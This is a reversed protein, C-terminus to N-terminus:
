DTYDTEYFMVVRKNNGPATTFQVQTTAKTIDATQATGDVWVNLKATDACPADTPLTFTTTATAAVFAILKPKYAHMGILAQAESFGETAASFATEWLWKTVVAPSVLFRSVAPSENMGQPHAYITAKPIMIARWVRAGSDNLAQQYCLLGVQPESGQLDHGVGIFKSEGITIEKTGTLLAYVDTDLRAARLEGSVADLAPLYDV